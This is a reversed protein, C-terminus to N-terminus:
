PPPVPVAEGEREAVWEAETLLLPEGDRVTSHPLLVVEGQGVGVAVAQAEVESLAEPLGSGEEVEVPLVTGVSVGEPPVAELEEVPVGEKAGVSEEAAVSVGVGEMAAAAVGLAVTEVALVGDKAASPADGLAVTDLVGVSDM